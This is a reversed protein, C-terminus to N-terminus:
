AASATGGRYHDPFLLWQRYLILIYVAYYM